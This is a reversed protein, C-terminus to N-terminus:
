VELRSLLDCEHEIVRRLGEEMGVEPVWGYKNKAYSNDCLSYKNIEHNLIEERICYAGEYLEPYKEWYHADSAYSAPITKKMLKQAIEYMENVSYNSNSSVNVCDFGDGDQVLIALRILDDVYIYDRRQNGDSHFIPTRDYFLERIMYAVFPPQKRLCDIHPGYVNAFRLCTVSMGYTDCYSQAFREACYKTNPYILTPQKFNDEHTPFTTENEYMANTSAQIVKKVGYKRGNELLNVLGSLNVSIAEVPDLQCDPLPAIGAINYIYDADGNCLLNEIGSKDRIDMRIIEDTFDHDPFVLNDMKGYSFNDILILDANKQWLAHALQSGIFGAAGTILVKM